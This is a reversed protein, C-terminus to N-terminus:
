SRPIQVQPVLGGRGWQVRVHRCVRACVCVCTHTRVGRDLRHTVLVLAVGGGATAGAWGRVTLCAVRGARGPGLPRTGTPSLTWPREPAHAVAVVRTGSHRRVAPHPRRSEPVTGNCGWEVMGDGGRRLWRECGHRPSPSLCDGWVTAPGPPHHSSLVPLLRDQGPRPLGLSPGPYPAVRLWWKHAWTGASDQTGLPASPSTEARRSGLGARLSDPLTRAGVFPRSRAQGQALSLWRPGVKSTRSVVSTM